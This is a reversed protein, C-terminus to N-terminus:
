SSHRQATTILHKRSIRHEPPIHSYQISFLSPNKKETKYSTRFNQTRIQYLRSTKAFLFHPIHISNIGFSNQYDPKRNLHRSPYIYCLLDNYFAKSHMYHLLSDTYRKLLSISILLKGEFKFSNLFFYFIILFFIKLIGLFPPVGM